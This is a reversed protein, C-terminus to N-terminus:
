QGGTGSSGGAGAIQQGVNTLKTNINGSFTQLAAVAAVSVLAVLLAYEVLSAGRESRSKCCNVLKNAKSNIVM